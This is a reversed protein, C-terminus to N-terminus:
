ASLVLRSSTLACVRRARRSSRGDARPGARPVLGVRRRDSMGALPGRDSCRGAYALWSPRPRRCSIARSWRLRSAGSRRAHALSGGVSRPKAGDSTTVSAPQAASGGGANACRAAKRWLRMPVGFCTDARVFWRRRAGIERGASWVGLESRDRLQGLPVDGFRDRAPARSSTSHSRRPSARPLANTSALSISANRHACYRRHVTDRDFVAAELERVIMGVHKQSPHKTSMAHAGADVLRVL